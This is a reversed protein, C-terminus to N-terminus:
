FEIAFGDHIYYKSFLIEFAEMVNIWIICKPFSLFYTGILQFDESPQFFNHAVQVLLDLLVEPVKRM